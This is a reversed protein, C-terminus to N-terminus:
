QNQDDSRRKDINKVPLQSVKSEGDPQKGDARISEAAARGAIAGSTFAWQLNYGGCIGDMDIIEGAMFLHPVYKSELRATLEGAPIGGACVQAQEFGNTKSIHLTLNRYLAAIQRRASAPLDKVHDQESCGCLRIMLQNIKKNSIGTLFQILTQDEMARFREKWLRSYAEEEYGPLFDIGVSVKKKHLLAYAAERSFQFVPIGSIGYDTLQLEGQVRSRVKEDIRLTLAAEIRVGAVSKLYDEECRLQVLAPVIETIHHGLSKALTYGNGDSGTKPAAMGGCALILADYYKRTQKPLRSGTATVQIRNTQRDAHLAEVMCDTHVTIGYRELAFRMVDLVTSAQNSLPYLYGQRDKILMGSQSFFDITESVGFQDYLDHYFSVCSGYYADKTMRTNSFNCKGNGTSLLKKGVRDNREYLEVDAGSMAAQIAAMMGAPGGGIVAITGHTRNPKM